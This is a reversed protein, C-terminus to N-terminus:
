FTKLHERKARFRPLKSPLEAGAGELESCSGGAGARVGRPSPDVSKWSLHDPTRRKKKIVIL